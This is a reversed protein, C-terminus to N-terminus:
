ESPADPAKPTGKVVASKASEGAGNTVTAQVSYETGNTLGSITGADGPKLDMTKANTGDTYYIKGATVTSGTNAGATIKVFLKTDDPTVQVTPASAVADKTKFSVDAFGTKGAYALKYNYQTNPKLDKITIPSTVGSQVAKDDLYLDFTTDAM